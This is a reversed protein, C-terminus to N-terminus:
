NWNADQRDNGFRAIAVPGGWRGAIRKMLRQEEEAWEAETRKEVVGAGNHGAVTQEQALKEQAVLEFM